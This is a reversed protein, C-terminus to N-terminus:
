GTPSGGFTGSQRVSPAGFTARRSSGHRIVLVQELQRVFLDRHLQRQRIPCHQDSATSAPDSLADRGRHDSRAAAGHEDAAVGVPQGAGCLLDLGGTAVTRHAIFGGVDGVLVLDRANDFRGGCPGAPQVADHMARAAALRDPRDRLDVGVRPPARDVQVDVARHVHQFM